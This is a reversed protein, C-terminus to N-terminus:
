GEVFRRSVVSKLWGSIKEAKFLLLFFICCSKNGQLERGKKETKKNFIEIIKKIYNNENQDCNVLETTIEEVKDLAKQWSLVGSAFIASNM